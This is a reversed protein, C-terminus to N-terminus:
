FVVEKVADVVEYTGDEKFRESLRSFRENYQDLREVEYVWEGNILSEESVEKGIGLSEVQNAILDDEQYGDRKFLVMPVEGRIAESVTSYGTKSVILDCMAVYNQTETEGSPIKLAGDFEINSSALFNLEESDIRVKGLISPDFSRGAGLFVLTKDLGLQERMSSKNRTIERSVLSIERKDEFLEMSENFPLVLALNAKQYAGELREVSPNEGFLNYFIYHWTFNSIAISPVGLKDAVLFPQPTIDSIILDVGRSRCFEEERKIYESWSNIWKDLLKKTKERDVVTSGQKFVVGVDNQTEIVSVNNQPLSQRVFNLPGATKVFIKIDEFESILKRIVAIQRAAHGYGYDSIYFCIRM